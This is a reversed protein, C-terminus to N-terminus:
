DEFDIECIIEATSVKRKMMNEYTDIWSYNKLLKDFYVAYRIGNKKSLREVNEVAKKFKINREHNGFLRHNKNAIMDTTKIQQQLPVFVKRLRM